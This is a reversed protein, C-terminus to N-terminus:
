KKSERFFRPPEKIELPILFVTNDSKQNCLNATAAVEHRSNLETAIRETLAVDRSGHM